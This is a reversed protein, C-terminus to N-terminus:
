KEGRKIELPVEISWPPLKIKEEKKTEESNNM